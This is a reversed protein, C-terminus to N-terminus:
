KAQSIFYQKTNKTFQIGNVFSIADIIRRGSEIQLQKVSLWDEATKVWIRAAPKDFAISGPKAQPDLKASTTQAHKPHEFEHLLVQISGDLSNSTMHRCGILTTTLPGLARWQNYINLPTKNKWDVIYDNPKLKPAKTHTGSQPTKQLTDYRELTEVLAQAGLESLEQKILSGPAMPDITYRKTMYIAGADFKSPAVDLVTVGSEEDGNMIAHEMPAAGRYLPLLSPHMLLPPHPFATILNAPLMYGFDVVIGIDFETKCLEILDNFSAGATGGSLDPNEPGNSPQPAPYEHVRIQHQNAWMQTPLKKKLEGQPPCVLEFKTVLDSSTDHNAIPHQVLAAKLRNM